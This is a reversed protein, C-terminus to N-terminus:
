SKYVILTVGLIDNGVIPLFIMAFEYIPSASSIIEGFVDPEFIIYRQTKDEPM